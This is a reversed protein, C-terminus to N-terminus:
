RRRLLNPLCSLACERSGTQAGSTTTIQVDLLEGTLVKDLRIRRARSAPRLGLAECLSALTEGIRGDPLRVAIVEADLLTVSEQRIPTTLSNNAVNGGPPM